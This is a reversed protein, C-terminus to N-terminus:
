RRNFIAGHQSVRKARLIRGKISLIVLPGFPLVFPPARLLVLAAPKTAHGKSPLIVLPVFPAVLAVITPLIALPASPLPVVLLVL